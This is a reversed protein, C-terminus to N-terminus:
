NTLKLVALGAGTADFRDIRGTPIMTKGAPAIAASSGNAFSAITAPGTVTYTGNGGTGSGLATVVVGGAPVGTGAIVSGVGIPAGGAVFASVTLTNTAVVGTFSNTPAVTEIIGTVNDFYARDGVNCAALVPIVIYGMDLLNGISNEPLDLTAGLPNGTSGYSAYEKPFGLIGAFVGTGGVTAQGANASNATPSPNAGNTITFARGIRNPNVGGSVLNYPAVRSPGDLLIEGVVGFAETFNVVTQLTM